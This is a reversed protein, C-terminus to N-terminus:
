VNDVYDMRTSRSCLLVEVVQHGHPSSILDIQQNGLSCLWICDIVNRSPDRFYKYWIYKSLWNPWGNPVLHTFSNRYSNMCPITSRIYHYHSKKSWWLALSIVVKCSWLNFPYIFSWCVYITHTDLDTGLYLCTMTNLSLKHTDHTSWESLSLSSFVVM